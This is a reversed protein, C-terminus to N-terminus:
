LCTRCDQYGGHFGGVLMIGSRLSISGHNDRGQNMNGINSWNGDKYEAITSM